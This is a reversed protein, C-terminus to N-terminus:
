KTIKRAKIVFTVPLIQAKRQFEDTTDALSIYEDNEEILQEIMFGKRALANIYTSLKRNSLMFKNDGIPVEYWSEDFYSNTFVWKDDEAAVCKHIPHSWSFIFTGGQKLYSNIRQFTTDLDTTWGISYVSYILDFYDKPIGCESEMPACVLRAEGGHSTLFEKTKKLQEPSIDLGWLEGAGKDHVYKLSHGNGCGIELAKRGGLDGLLHLKNESVFAGYGPLATNELIEGGIGNWFDRNAKHAEEADPNIRTSDTAEQGGIISKYSKEM